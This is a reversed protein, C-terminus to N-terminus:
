CMERGMENTALDWVAPAESASNGICEIEIEGDRLVDPVPHEYREAPVGGM